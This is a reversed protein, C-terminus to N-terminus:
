RWERPLGAVAAEIVDAPIRQGGIVAGGAARV